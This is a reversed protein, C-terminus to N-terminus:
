TRAGPLHIHEEHTHVAAASAHALYYLLRPPHCSTASVPMGTLFAHQQQLGMNFVCCSSPQRLCCCGHCCSVDHVVAAVACCCTFLLSVLTEVSFAIAVFASTEKCACCVLHVAAKATRSAQVKLKNGIHTWALLCLEISAKAFRMVVSLCYALAIILFPTMTLAAQSASCCCFTHLACCVHLCHSVLTNANCAALCLKSGTYLLIIVCNSSLKNLQQLRVMMWRTVEVADAGGLLWAMLLGSYLYLNSVLLIIVANSNSCLSRGHSLAARRGM